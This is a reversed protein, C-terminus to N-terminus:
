SGMAGAGAGFFIGGGCVFHRPCEITLRFSAPELLPADIETDSIPASRPYLALQNCAARVGTEYADEANGSAWGRQIM